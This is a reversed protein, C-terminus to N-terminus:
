ETYTLTDTDEDYEYGCGSLQDLVEQRDLAEIGSDEIAEKLGRKWYMMHAVVRRYQATSLPFKAM